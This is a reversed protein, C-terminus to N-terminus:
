STSRRIHLLKWEIFDLLDKGQIDIGYRLSIGTFCQANKKVLKKLKLIALLLYNWGIVKYSTEMKHMHITYEGNFGQAKLVKWVRLFDNGTLSVILPTDTGLFIRCQALGLM